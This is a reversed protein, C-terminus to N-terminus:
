REPAGGAIWARILEAEQDPLPLLDVGLPMTEGCPATTGRIRAIVKTYLLSRDPDGPVVRTGKGACEPASAPVDVLAAYPDPELDLGGAAFEGGSHCPATCRPTLVAQDLEAFTPAEPEGSGCAGIGACLSASLWWARTTV